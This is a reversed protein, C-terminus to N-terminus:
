YLATLKSSLYISSSCVSSILVLSSIHIVSVKFSNVHSSSTIPFTVNASDGDNPMQMKFASAFASLVSILAFGIM